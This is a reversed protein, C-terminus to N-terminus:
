AEKSSTAVVDTMRAARQPAIRAPVAGDLFITAWLEVSALKWVSDFWNPRADDHLLREVARVDFLGRDRAARSLMLDHLFGRHSGRFWHEVPTDFGVKRRSLVERPLVDSVAQRLLWKTSGARFKLGFDTQFAFRVLRPDALPVRSELSNAMSMRDDQHFLGTLYTQMDWHLLKTGPDTASSADLVADFTARCSRRSVVERTAFVDHWTSEPVLAFNDFYRSRWDAPNRASTFLRRLNRADLLQGGLSGGGGPRDARASFAARVRAIAWSRAVQWPRALAYRAYGGFVEDAAQGGLCVKVHRSALQSVAFMPIMASGIVPADQFYMARRFDEPFERGDVTIMELHVGLARAASEQFPREDIVGPEFFHAGFCQVPTGTRKAYATVASSDIGGSFFAGVPVDSLLQDSVVRSLEDRLERVNTEADPARATFDRLSWFRSTSRGAASVTLSEGARVQSVGRFFTREFLPTHFHLYQNLGEPDLERPVGDCRLLAKVESAFAIRRGDDHFYLQKVGLMDRALTLTRAHRDWYAFAFIGSIGELAGVGRSRVLQLLTETDSSGRFRVGSAELAPRHRAHDYFEGNYAIWAQQDDTGMPQHGTPTLDVISLRRHGLGLCGDLYYGEDDPGRHVLARTMNRLVDLDVRRDPDRYHFIGALGCM